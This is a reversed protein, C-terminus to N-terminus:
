CTRWNTCSRGPDAAFGFGFLVMGQFPACIPRQLLEVGPLLQRLVEREPPDAVVRARLSPALAAM